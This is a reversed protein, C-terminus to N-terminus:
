HTTLFPPPSPPHPPTQQLPQPIHGPGAQLGAGTSDHAWWEAVEFGSSVGAPLAFPVDFVGVPIGRETLPKWFPTLHRGHYRSLTMTEPRWRWESYVGHSTPEDGTSFTPWVTGSGFHATSRVSLWRGSGGAWLLPQFAPLEGQDILRRVLAGEAADIGIALTRSGNGTNM